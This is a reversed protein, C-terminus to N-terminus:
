KAKKSFVLSVLALVIAFAVTLWAGVGPYCNTVEVSINGVGADVSMEGCMIILGIIAVVVCVLFLILLINNILNMNFKFKLIKLNRLIMIIASIILLCAVVMAIIAFVKFLTYGDPELLPENNIIDYGSVSTPDGIKTDGAMVQTTKWALAFFVFTLIGMLASSVAGIYKRM